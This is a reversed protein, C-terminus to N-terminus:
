IFFKSTVFFDKLCNYFVFDYLDEVNKYTVSTGTDNNICVVKDPNNLYDFVEYFLARGVLLLFNHFVDSSVNLEYLEKETINFIIEVPEYSSDLVLIDKSHSVNVQMKFDFGRGFSNEQLLFKIKLFKNENIIIAIKDIDM